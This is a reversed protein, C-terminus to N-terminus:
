RGRVALQSCEVKVAREVASWRRRESWGWAKATAVKVATAVAEVLGGGDGLAKLFGAVLYDGCGVTATVPRQQGARCAWGQGATIAVAGRKGRSVLVVEVKGLLGRCAGALARAENRVSEGLLQRLEEVNLHVMWVAGSAVLSRLPEGSTDLVVKAGQRRCAAVVELVGRLLAGSPMLGAFVCRDGPRVLRSLDESLEALAQRSALTCGQRLHMERGRGVDVVTVNVRTQGAVRTMKLSISGALPKLMQVMRKYDDRGWLGAAISKGGLWALARSINLAKGAPRDHVARVLKHQGWEIQDFEYVRDWSPCVGVTIVRGVRRM